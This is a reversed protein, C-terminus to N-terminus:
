GGMSESICRSVSWALRQGTDPWWNTESSRNSSTWLWRSDPVAVM